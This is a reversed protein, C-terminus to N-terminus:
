PAAKVKRERDRPRSERGRKTPYQTASKRTLLNSGTRAAWSFVDIPFKVATWFLRNPLSLATLTYHYLTNSFSNRKREVDRQAAAALVIADKLRSELDQLRADTQITTITTRKEYRRVARNLADLEPQMGRRVESTVQSATKAAMADEASKKAKSDTSEAIHTELEELRRVIDMMGNQNDKAEVDLSEAMVIRQLHLTREQILKILHSMPRIEAALLFVTLNYNSVLGESPRSLQSRIAHLLWAGVAPGLFCTLLAVLEHVRLEKQASLKGASVADEDDQNRLSHEDQRSNKSSPSDGNVGRQNEDDDGSEEVIAEFSPSQPTGTQVAQSSAYWERVRHAFIWIRPLLTHM